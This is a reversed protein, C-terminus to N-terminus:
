TLAPPPLIHIPQPCGTQPCKHVTSRIIKTPLPPDQLVQIVKAAAEELAFQSSTNKQGAGPFSTVTKTSSQMISFACSLPAAQMYLINM